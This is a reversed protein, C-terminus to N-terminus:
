YLVLVAREEEVAENLARICVRKFLCKSSCYLQQFIPTFCSYRTYYRQEITLLTHLLAREEEVAENYALLGASCAAFMSRM